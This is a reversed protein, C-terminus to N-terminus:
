RTFSEQPTVPGVCVSTCVLYSRFFFCKWRVLFFYRNRTDRLKSRFLFLSFSSLSWWNIQTQVLFILFYIFVSNMSWIQQHFLALCAPLARSLVSHKFYCPVVVSAIPCRYYRLMYFRFSHIFEFCFFSESDFSFRAVTTTARIWICVCKYVVRFFSCFYLTTKRSFCVRSLFLNFCFTFSFLKRHKQSFLYVAASTLM